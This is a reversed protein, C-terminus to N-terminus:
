KNNTEEKKEKEIWKKAVDVNKRGNRRMLETWNIEKLQKFIMNWIFVKAMMWFMITISIVMVVYMEDIELALEITM